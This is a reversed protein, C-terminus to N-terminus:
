ASPTASAGNPVEPIQGSDKLDKYAATQAPPVVAKIADLVTGSVSEPLHSKLVEAVRSFGAALSGQKWAQYLAVGLALLLAALALAAGVALWELFRSVFVSAGALTLGAGALALGSQLNVRLAVFAGGAALVVGGIFLWVLARRLGAEREKEADEYKGKWADREKALAAVQADAARLDTVVKGLDALAPQAKQALDEHAEALEQAIEDQLRTAQADLHQAVPEAAPTAKRIVAADERVAVGVEQVGEAAAVVKADADKAADGATKAGSQLLDAQVRLAPPAVTVPTSKCGAITLALCVLVLLLLNLTQWKASKV